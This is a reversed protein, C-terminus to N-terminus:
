IVGNFNQVRIVVLGGIAYLNDNVVVVSSNVYFVALDPYLRKAM